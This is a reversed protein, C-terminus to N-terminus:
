TKNRGIEKDYEKEKETDEQRDAKEEIDFEERYDKEDMTGVGKGANYWLDSFLGLM